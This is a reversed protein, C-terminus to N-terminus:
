KFELVPQKALWKPKGHEELGVWQSILYDGPEAGHWVLKGTRQFMTALLEWAERPVKHKEFDDKFHDVTPGPDVFLDESPLTRVFEELTQDKPWFLAVLIGAHTAEKNFSYVKRAPLFGDESVVAIISDEGDRKCTMPRDYDGVAVKYLGPELELKLPTTGVFNEEAAMALTENFYRGLKDEALLHVDLGVPFSLIFLSSRTSQPGNEIM